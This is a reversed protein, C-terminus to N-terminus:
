SSSNSTDGNTTSSNKKEGTSKEVEASSSTAEVLGVALTEAAAGNRRTRGNDFVGDVRRVLADSIGPTALLARTKNRSGVAVSLARGDARV